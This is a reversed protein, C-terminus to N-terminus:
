SPASAALISVVVAAYHTAAAAVVFVHWIATQFPLREWLHFVVGVTYLGGGIILLILTPTDLAQILPALAVLGVWGLVLYLGISIRDFLRGHLLRVLVGAAAASWVVGTLSISWAGQMHLATFPTYTGAIMIFIASNDLRRLWSRHRTWRALNYACSCGLMALLGVSYVSVAAVDAAGGRRTAIILLAAAGVIGALIAAAHIAGDVGIEWRTLQRSFAGTVYDRAESATMSAEGERRKSGAGRIPAAAAATASRRL